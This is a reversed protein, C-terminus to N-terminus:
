RARGTRPRRNAAQQEVTAWRCNGPEYNGDNDIRDISHGEPRPGMDELFAEFSERWRDCVSIGRAGYREYSTTKPNHCRQIMSNWSGYEPRQRMGHKTNRALRREANLCGCSQTEGRRASVVRIVKQTGCDCQVLWRSQGHKGAPAQEILVLRGFRMGAEYYRASM